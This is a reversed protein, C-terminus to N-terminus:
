RISPRLAFDKGELSFWRARADVGTERLAWATYRGRAARELMDANIDVARISVGALAAERLHERALIALSYPEEGSACGACLIRLPRPAFTRAPLAVETFARLQDASRFFYTETVTLERALERLEARGAEPNELRALYADVGFRTNDLRRRLVEVLVSLRGDEIWLGLRRAVLVRFRDVSSPDVLTTM